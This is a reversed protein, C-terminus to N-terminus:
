NLLAVTLNLAAAFVLWALYPLQLWAASKRVRGFMLTMFAALAILLLLWVFAMYRWGLAFFFMPWLANVFLQMAFLFMAGSCLGPNDERAAVQYGSVILLLYLASWAAPFVWEPPAFAPQHLARYADMGLYIFLSGVLAAALVPVLALGLAQPNLRRTM